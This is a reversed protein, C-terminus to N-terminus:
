NFYKGYLIIARDMESIKILRDKLFDFIIESTSSAEYDVLNISSIKHLDNKPHHDFNIIKKNKLSMTKLEKAFGTRKMDGCDLICITDIDDITFNNTIRNSNPLFLFPQPINDLCVHHIKKGKKSLALGMGLMSGLADGDPSTHTILLINKASRIIEYAKRYTM